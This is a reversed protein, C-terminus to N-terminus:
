DFWYIEIKITSFERKTSYGVISEKQVQSLEDTAFRQVRLWIAQPHSSEAALM